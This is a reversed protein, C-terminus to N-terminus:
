QLYRLVCGRPKSSRTSIDQKYLRIQSCAIAYRGGRIKLRSHFTPGCRTVSSQQDVATQDQTVHAARGPQFTPRSRRCHMCGAISGMVRDFTVKMLLAFVAAACSSLSTSRSSTSFQSHQKGKPSEWEDLEDIMRGIHEHVFGGVASLETHTPALGMGQERCTQFVAFRQGQM